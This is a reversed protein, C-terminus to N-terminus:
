AVGGCSYRKLHPPEQVDRRAPAGPAPGQATQPPSGEALATLREALAPELFGSRAVHLLEARPAPAGPETLAKARRGFDGRLKAFVAAAQVRVVPVKSALAMQLAGYMAPKYGRSIAAIAAQQEALTGSSFVTDYSRVAAASVEPRRGQRIQGYVQQALPLPAAERDPPASIAPFWAALQGFTAASADALFVAIGGLPGLLLLLLALGLPDVSWRKGHRSALACLGVTVLDHIAIAAVTGLTGAFWQTLIALDILALGVVLAYQTNGASFRLHAVKKPRALDIM